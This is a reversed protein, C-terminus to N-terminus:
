TAFPLAIPQRATATEVTSLQNGARHHHCRRHAAPLAHELDALAGSLAESLSTAARTFVLSHVEAVVVLTADRADSDFLRRQITEERVDVDDLDILFQFLRQGVAQRRAHAGEIARVVEPIRPPLAVDSV